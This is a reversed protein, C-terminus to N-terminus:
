RYRGFAEHRRADEESASPNASVGPFPGAPLPARRWDTDSHVGEDGQSSSSGGASAQGAAAPSTDSDYLGYRGASGHQSRPAPSLSRDSRGARHSGGASADHYDDDSDDDMSRFPVPPYSKGQKSQAYGEVYKCKLRRFLEEERNHYQRLKKEIFVTFDKGAVRAPNHALYFDRLRERYPNWSLKKSSHPPRYAALSAAMLLFVAGAADIEKLRHALVHGSAARVANPLKFMVRNRQVHLWFHVLIPGIGTAVAFRRLICIYLLAAIAHPVSSALFQNYDEALSLEIETRSAYALSGVVVLAWRCSNEMLQWHGPLSFSFILHTKKIVIKTAAWDSPPRAVGEGDKV